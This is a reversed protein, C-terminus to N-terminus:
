KKKKKKTAERESKNHVEAWDRAEQWYIAMLEDVDFEEGTEAEENRVFEDLDRGLVEVIKFEETETNYIGIAEIAEDGRYIDQITAEWVM